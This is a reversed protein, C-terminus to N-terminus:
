FLQAAMCNRVVGLRERGEGASGGGGWKDGRGEVGGGGGGGGRSVCRMCVYGPIKRHLIGISRPKFSPLGAARVTISKPM